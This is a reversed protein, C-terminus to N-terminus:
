KIVNVIVCAVSLVLCIDVLVNIIKNMKIIFKDNMDFNVQKTKM